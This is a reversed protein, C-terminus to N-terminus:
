LLENLLFNKVDSIHQRFHNNNANEYSLIRKLKIELSNLLKQNKVMYANQDFGLYAREIYKDTIPIVDSIFFVSAIRNVKGVHYFCSKINSSDFSISNRIKNKTEEAKKGWSSIPIAWYLM